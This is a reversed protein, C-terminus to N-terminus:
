RLQILGASPATIQGADIDPASEVSRDIRAHPRRGAITSFPTAFGVHGNVPEPGDRRCDPNM